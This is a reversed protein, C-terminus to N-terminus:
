KKHEKDYHGALADGFDNRRDRFISHVHNGNNQFNDYEIVFEPGQVWYYHPHGPTVDQSGSWVFSNQDWGAQDIRKLIDAAFFKSARVVYLQILDKLQKKQAINLDSYRLGETADLEVKRQQYTLIEKPAQDAIIAKAKQEASLSNLLDVAMQIETKLLQHGKNVGDLVIAPNSCLVSPTASIVKNQDIVYNLCLHHGEIKWGWPKNTEQAGFLQIYYNKPDRYTDGEKRGEVGRLIGELFAISKIKELTTAGATSMVLQYFKNKQEESLSGIVVGARYTKPVFDWNVREKDEWPRSMKELQDVSLSKILESVADAPSLTPIQQQAITTGYFVLTFLVASINSLKM